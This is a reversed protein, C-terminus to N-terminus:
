STSARSSRGACAPSCRGPRLGQLRRRARARLPDRCEPALSRVVGACATGHGCLDGEPRGDRSRSATRASSIAVAGQVEGVLPHGREVGSDLICVRVGAGTSGEIAWDRDVKQPLPNALAIQAAAERPLSWAPFLREESMGGGRGPAGPAGTRRGRRGRPQDGRSPRSGASSRRRTSGRGGPRPRAGPRHSGRPLPRADRRRRVGGRDRAPSRGRPRPGERLRLRPARRVSRARDGPVGCQAAALAEADEEGLKALRM